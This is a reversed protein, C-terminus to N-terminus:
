TTGRVYRQENVYWYPVVSKRYYNMAVLCHVITPRKDMPYTTILRPSQRWCRTNQRNPCHGLTWPKQDYYVKTRLRRFRTWRTTGLGRIYALRKSKKVLNLRLRSQVKYPFIGNPNPQSRRTRRHVTSHSIPLRRATTRLSSGNYLLNRARRTVRDAVRQRPRERTDSRGCWRLVTPYPINLTLHINWAKMGNDHLVQIAARENNTRRPPM